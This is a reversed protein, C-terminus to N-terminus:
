CEEVERHTEEVLRERPGQYRDREPRRERCWDGHGDLDLWLYDEGDTWHM